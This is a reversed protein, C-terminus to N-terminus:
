QRHGGIWQEVYAAASKAGRSSWKPQCLSVLSCQRCHPKYVAKPTRSEAHMKTMEVTIKAVCERLGSTLEIKERKRVEHYFIEGESISVGMMEELCIAQACLQLADRDDRKPKGRKYEVPIVSWYGARGELVVTAPSPQEQRRFEVMDATGRVRLAESVLPMSRVVRKDGRTEDFQPDDVMRHVDNGETTLVNEKWQQEVHILAWQRPCFAFHQIGSLMLYDDPELATVTM